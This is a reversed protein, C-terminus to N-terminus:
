ADPRAAMSSIARRTGGDQHADGLGRPLGDALGSSLLVFEHLVPLGGYPIAHVRDSLEYRRACGRFEPGPGSPARGGKVENLRAAIVRECRALQRRIKRNVQFAGPQNETLDQLGRFM